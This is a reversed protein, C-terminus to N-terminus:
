SLSDAFRLGKLWRQWIQMALDIFQGTNGVAYWYGSGAGRERRLWFQDSLRSRVQRLRGSLAASLM